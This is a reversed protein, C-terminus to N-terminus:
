NEDVVRGFVAQIHRANNGEVENLHLIQEESAEFVHKLVLWNVTETFPSTTLSGPYHYYHKMDEDTILENLNLFTNELVTEAGINEPIADVIKGLFPNDGGEKFLLSIVLYHPAGDDFSSDAIHVLHAELPFTIGDVLHEGPTHFHMQKFSYSVGDFTIISGEDVPLQVTHGTNIIREKSSKFFVSIEHHGEATAGTKINIPSQLLGHDLNPLLYKEAANEASHETKHNEACSLPLVLLFLFLLNKNM